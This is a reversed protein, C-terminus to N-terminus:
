HGSHDTAGAPAPPPAAPAKPPPAAPPPAAPPATRPPPTPAAQQPAPASAAVPASASSAAPPAAPTPVNGGARVYTDFNEQNEFYVVANSPKAGIVAVAKDVPRGSVPDTGTRAAADNTLKDKCMACCGYYMRGDIPVPIQKEKMFRNNMMCVEDPAVKRLVADTATAVEATATAHPPVPDASAAPATVAVPDNCGIAVLALPLAFKSLHHIARIVVENLCMVVSRSMQTQAVGV